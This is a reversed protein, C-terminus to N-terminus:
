QGVSMCVGRGVFLGTYFGSGFGIDPTLSAVGIFNMTEGQRGM